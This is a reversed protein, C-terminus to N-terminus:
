SKSHAFNTTVGGTTSDAHLLYSKGWREARNASPASGHRNSICFGSGNLLMRTNVFRPIVAMRPVIRQAAM